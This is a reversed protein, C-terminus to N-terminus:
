SLFRRIVQEVQQKASFRFINHMHFEEEEEERVLPWYMKRTEKQESEGLFPKDLHSFLWFRSFPRVSPTCVQKISIAMTM